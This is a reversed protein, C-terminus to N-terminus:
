LITLSQFNFLIFFMIYPRSFVNRTVKQIWVVLQKKKNQNKTKNVKTSDTKFSCVNKERLKVRSSLVKKQKEKKKLQFSQLSLRKKSQFFSTREVTRSSDKQKKM